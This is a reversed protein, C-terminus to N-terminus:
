QEGIVIFEAGIGRCTADAATLLTNVQQFRLRRQAGMTAVPTTMEAHTLSPHVIVVRKRCNAGVAALAALMANRNSAVRNHYVINAISNALGARLGKAVIRLDLHRLNKIAQGLVTEFHPLSSQRNPANSHSGKAHIVSLVPPVAVNDLHIFDAMEHHRDDCALWGGPNVAGAGLNPWANRVWCFLSGQAGVTAVTLPTPKELEINIGPLNVWTISGYSVDRYRMAYLAHGSLTYGADYWIKLWGRDHECLARVRQYLADVAPAASAGSLMWTVRDRHTIDVTFGITGLNVGDHTVDATVNAGANNTIHFVTREALAERDRVAPDNWEDESLSHPSVLGIDYAARVAGRDQAPVALVPLPANVRQRTQRMHDLLHGTSDRFDDWDSSRGSWIRSNEPSVGIISPNGAVTVDSRVASFYYSNDALGDLADRLNIGSLVKSDAKVTTKRHIATLWLTKADGKVFAANLRTKPITQLSGLGANAGQNLRRLVSRRPSADTLLIAVMRSSLCVLVLHNLRDFIAPDDTWPTAKEERYHLGGVVMGSVAAGNRRDVLNGSGPQGLRLVDNEIDNLISNVIGRVSVAPPVTALLFSKYPHLQQLNIPM